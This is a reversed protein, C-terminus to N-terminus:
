FFAKVVHVDIKGVHLEIKGVDVGIKGVHVDYIVVLFRSERILLKFSSLSYLFYFYAECLRIFYSPVQWFKM